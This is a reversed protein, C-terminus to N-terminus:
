TTPVCAAWTLENMANSFTWWGDYGHHGPGAAIGPHEQISPGPWQNDGMSGGFASYGSGCGAYVSRPKQSKNWAHRVVIGTSVKACSAYAIAGGTVWYTNTTANFWSNTITGLGFGTVLTYGSRCQAGALGSISGAFRWEFNTRAISKPLCSAFAEASANSDPHVYWSNFKSNAYGTGVFSGDSSSSGGAVVKYGLPCQAVAIKGKSGWTAVQKFESSNLTLPQAGAEMSLDPPIASAGGSGSCGSLVILAVTVARANNLSLRALSASSKSM